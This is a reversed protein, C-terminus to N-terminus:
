ERGRHEAAGADVGHQDIRMRDIGGVEAALLEVEDLQPRVESWGSDDHLLYNGETIVLSVSPEVLVASGISEEIDRDFRPAYLASKQNRLRNLLSVYGDVDFTDPAGKRERRDLRCLEANALHFGDMGVVVMADGVREQILASLTSKGVGPPGVLGLLHRPRSAALEAAREIAEDMLM